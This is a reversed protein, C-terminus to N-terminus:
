APTLIRDEYAFDRQLPQEKVVSFDVIAFSLATQLASEYHTRLHASGPSNETKMKAITKEIELLANPQAINLIEFAEKVNFQEQLFQADLFPAGFQKKPTQAFHRPFANAYTRRLIAKDQLGAVLAHSPLQAVFERLERSLFPTRGELTNAMEMRDGVWNLVQVPLHTKCFYNQWLLLANEPNTLTEEDDASCLGISFWSRLEPGLEELWKLADINGLLATAITSVQEFLPHPIGWLNLSQIFDQGSGASSSGALWPNKADSLYKKGYLSDRWLTGYNQKALVDRWKQGPKMRPRMAFSWCKAYRFSPYGCLLEDAGDGTLVGRVHQRTFRSLWWKAAGNTYPQVNESAYVAHPYAYALANNDVWFSQPDFNLHRAFAMAEDTENYLADKFGITFTKLAPYKSNQHQDQLANQLEFAIAKSDIGGSLYVGLEVDSLLRNRVSTKLLESFEATLKTWDLSNQKHESPNRIAKKNLNLTCKWESKQKRFELISGPPVQIIEEFPTCIPEYLGVYQKLLGQKNWNKTISLGKIESSFCFREVSFEYQSQAAAFIRTNVKPLGFFLPKVGFFDRAAYVENGDKSLIVISFEGELLSFIKTGHALFGILITETDGHTKFIHGTLASIEARLKLHNYIEGNFVILYRGDPSWQPQYSASADQFALRYHQLLMEPAVHQRADDNGRNAIRAASKSFSDIEHSVSSSGPWWLLGSFGCM